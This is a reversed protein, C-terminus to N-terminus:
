RNISHIAHGLAAEAAEMTIEGLTPHAHITLALDELHAGMEIALGLEAILNSAEAGVIQAGIVIGTEKDAVLKVYGNPANMSLARGNAGFSFKGVQVDYGEEKAETESLGVSAIEPDSFVVSPIVKYDVVSNQGAIVEAAVKGEYSAKHALAPGEVVDGIAFIHEVSTRCQHDVEILGRDNVKISTADLGLQDTNPKRGVTVLVYDATVSKEEDNM